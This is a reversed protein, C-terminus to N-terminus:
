KKKKKEGGWQVGDDLVGGLRRPLQSPDVHAFLEDQYKSGLLVFKKASRAPAMAKVIPGAAGAAPLNFFFNKFTTTPYVKSAIGSAEKFAREGEKEERSQFAKIMKFGTMDFCRFMLVQLRTLPNTLSSTLGHATPGPPERHCTRVLRGQRRSLEDIILVGLEVGCLYSRAWAATGLAAIGANDVLGPCEICVLNGQRDLLPAHGGGGPLLRTFTRPQVAQVAADHATAVVESLAEGGHVFFAANARVLQERVEDLRQEARWLLAEVYMDAAARPEWGCAALFRVLRIDAAFEASLPEGGGGAALAEDRRWRMYALALEHTPGFEAFACGAKLAELEDTTFSPCPVEPAPAAPPPAAEAISPSRPSRPSRPSGVDPPARLQSVSSESRRSSQSCSRQLPSVGEPPSSQEAGTGSLSHGVANLASAAADAAAPGYRQAHQALLLLGADGSFSNRPTTRPSDPDLLLITESARTMNAPSVEGDGLNLDEASMNPHARAGYYARQRLSAAMEEDGYKLCLELMRADTIM